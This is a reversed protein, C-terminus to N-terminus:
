NNCKIDIPWSKLFKGCIWLARDTSRPDVGDFRICWRLYDNLYMSVKKKDSYTGLEDIEGHEFFWRTRWVHQDFVPYRDPQWCHLWFIRWIAGGKDFRSLFDEPTTSLPLRDLEALRGVFNDEVTEEQKKGWYAGGAKWLFLARVKEPTLPRGINETYLPELPDAYMAYWFAVFERPSARHARYIALQDTTSVAM